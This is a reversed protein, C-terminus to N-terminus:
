LRLIDIDIIFRMFFRYKSRIKEFSKRFLLGFIEELYELYWNYCRFYIYDIFERFFFLMELFFM